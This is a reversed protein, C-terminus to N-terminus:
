LLEVVPLYDTYGLDEGTYLHAYDTKALALGSRIRGPLDPNAIFARGFSVADARSADILAAGSAAKLKNNAIIPGSWNARVIALTDLNELTMDIVHVYALGLRDTTKLFAAFLPEPDASDMGNYPNGPSIPFGVRDAGIAEALRKLVTVPFNIRKAISGVFEDDRAKSGATLFQNILYGSARQLVVGEMGAARANTSRKPKARGLRELCSHGGFLRIHIMRM